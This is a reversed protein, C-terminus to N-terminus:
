LTIAMTQPQSKPLNQLTLFPEFCPLSPPLSLSIARCLSASFHAKNTQDLFDQPKSSPFNSASRKAPSQDLQTPM